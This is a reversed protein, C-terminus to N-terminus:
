YLQRQRNYFVRAGVNVGLYIGRLGVNEDDPRINLIKVVRGSLASLVLRQRFFNSGEFVLIPPSM